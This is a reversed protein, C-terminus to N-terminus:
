DPIDVLLEELVATLEDVKVPKTLYRYFGSDKGRLTDRPLAAATLAIVPIDKTEPWQALQKTADIGSMGPLNIDMIVVAPKHARILDLGIEATPATLLEISALDEMLERMFAINSPNDEVYIIKHRPGTVLQSEALLRVPSAAMIEDSAELPVEVWFESGRGTETSFGVRGQMLQALRKSIALGIGTGQIPGTEQGARQFPEFIKTRKDEPIGIGDDIVAIRAMGDVESTRFTVHGGRRNYKIANSGYNMLIQALRTRDAMVRVSGSSSHAHSLEIGAREAMPELTTAVERIVEDLAVPENSITINGAEIRSLDLVEDILRLLHEGGRMVHDVRELQRGSLPEKKDRQLLQAFGLVANLPTRLEHSMSALFDSKAASAAEATERARRLEDGRLRDETIDVILSVTGHEATPREVVRLMHGSKTKLELSGAPDQHYSYWRARLEHPSAGGLDLLESALMDDLLQAFTRGVVPGKSTAGILERFTSNVMVVRDEEDYLAFADQISDVASVLYANARRAEAEIRKRDSVDRIAASIITGKPTTLPSLSIEVPFESGDRRRGFLELESGMPRSKPHEVYGAVHKPHRARFREPILEEIPKGLLEARTYGFMAEAQKNVLLINASRDCVVIGDPAADVLDRFSLESQDSLPM